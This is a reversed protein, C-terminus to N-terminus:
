MQCWQMHRWLAGFEVVHEGSLKIVGGVRIEYAAAGTGM